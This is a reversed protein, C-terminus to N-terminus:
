LVFALGCTWWSRIDTESHSQSFHSKCPWQRDMVMSRCSWWYSSVCGMECIILPSNYVATTLGCTICWHCLFCSCSSILLVNHLWQAGGKHVVNTCNGWCLIHDGGWKGVWLRVVGNRDWSGCGIGVLIFHQHKQTFNTFANEIKNWVVVLFIAESLEAQIGLDSSIM